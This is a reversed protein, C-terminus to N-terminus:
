PRPELERIIAEREAPTVDPAYLMAILTSPSAPALIAEVQLAARHLSAITADGALASLAEASPRFPLM